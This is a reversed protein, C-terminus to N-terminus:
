NFVTDKISNVLYSVLFNSVCNKYRMSTLECNKNLIFSDHLYIEEYSILNFDFLVLNEDSNDFIDIDPSIRNFLDSCNEKSCISLNRLMTRILHDKEYLANSLKKRLAELMECLKEISKGRCSSNMSRFIIKQLICIIKDLLHNYCYSNNLISDILLNLREIYDSLAERIINEDKLQIFDFCLEQPNIAGSLTNSSPINSSLILSFLYNM